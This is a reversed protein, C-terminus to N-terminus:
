FNDGFSERYVKSFDAQEDTYAPKEEGKAGLALICLVGYKEPIGLIERIAQESDQGEKSKRLRMQIWTSGLGLHEAQLQIATAAISADEVWVDSLEADGLVVIGLPAKELFSASHAKCAALKALTPADQVVVFHVPKKNMSTPALLATCLLSQIHEETVPQPAFQRISRRKKMLELM